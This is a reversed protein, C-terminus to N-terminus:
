TNRTMRARRDPGRSASSAPVEHQCPRGAHRQTPRGGPHQDATTLKLTMRPAEKLLATCAMPVYHLASSAAIGIRLHGARGESLDAIERTVDDLSLRLRSVRALL